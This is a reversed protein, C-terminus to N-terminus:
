KLALGYFAMTTVAWNLFMILTVSAIYWGKFLSLFGLSNQNSSNTDKELNEVTLLEKPITTGNM